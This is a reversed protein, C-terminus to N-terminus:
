KGGEWASAWSLTWRSIAIIGERVVVSAELPPAVAVWSCSRSPEAYRLEDREESERERLELLRM